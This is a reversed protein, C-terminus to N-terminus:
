WGAGRGLFGIPPNDGPGATSAPILATGMVGWAASTITQSGGIITGATPMSATQLQLTGTTGVASSFEAVAETWDGGTEGTYSAMAVNLNVAIFDLALRDAGNTIVGPFDNPGTDTSQDSQVTLTDNELVTAVTTGAAEGSFEYMRAFIDEGSAGVTLDVSCTGGATARGVLLTHRAAGPNGVVRNTGVFDMDSATGDLKSINTVTGISYDETTGGILFHVLLLNGAAGSLSVSSTGATIAVGTGAQVFAPIAM